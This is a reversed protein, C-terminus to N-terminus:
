VEPRTRLCSCTVIAVALSGIRIEHVFAVLQELSEAASRCGCRDDLRECRHAGASRDFEVAVALRHEKDLELTPVELALFREGDAEDMEAGGEDFFSV